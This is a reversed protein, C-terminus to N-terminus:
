TRHRAVLDALHALRQRHGLGLLVAVGERLRHVRLEEVPKDLTDVESGRAAAPRQLAGLEDADEVDEAELYELGVTELLQEDVVGVLLQLGVEGLCGELVLLAHVHSLADLEVV